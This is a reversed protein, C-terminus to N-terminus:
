ETPHENYAAITSPNRHRYYPGWNDHEQITRQQENELLDYSILTENSARTIIIKPIVSRKKSSKLKTDPKYSFDPASIAQLSILALLIFPPKLKLPSLFIEEGIAFWPGFDRKLTLMIEHAQYRCGELYRPVESSSSPKSHKVTGAGFLLNEAPQNLAEKDPQKAEKEMVKEKTKAVFNTPNKKPEEVKKERSKSKSLGM